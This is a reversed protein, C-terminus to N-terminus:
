FNFYLFQSDNGLRSVSIALGAALVLAWRISPQWSFFIGKRVIDGGTGHADLVPRHREFIEQTNPFFVCVGLLGLLLGTNLLGFTGLWSSSFGVGELGGFYPRLIEPLLVGSGGAMVKLLELAGHISGARFFVWAVMVCLFTLIWSFAVWVTPMREMLVRRLAIGTWLHNIILFIGHLAGWFLFNWSAGHWFGGLAMTIFLNLYRRSEGRKNGGLPIYLYDRLFRSLTMHWRRWFDVVNLAKYPSDFNVPLRIGFMLSIGIAMDCYGSFDFYLQVSYALVGLWAEAFLIEAGSEAGSFVPTAFDAVTDAILVKKVIGISLISVGVVIDHLVPRVDLMARFQSMMEKHHLIPGAIQHPFYSVFLVYDGFDQEKAKGQFVDILYAIQTFTYFSIGIPLIVHVMDLSRSIAGELTAVFFNSYKFFGLLALNFFVGLVLCNKRSAVNFEESRSM